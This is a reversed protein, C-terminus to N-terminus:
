QEAPSHEKAQEKTLFWGAVGIVILVIYFILKWLTSHAFEYPIIGVDEHGLTLM